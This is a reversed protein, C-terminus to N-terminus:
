LKGRAAYEAEPEWPFLPQRRHQYKFSKLDASTPGPTDALIFHAAVCAYAARPAIAAKVTIIKKAQPDIGLSLIQHLSLPAMRLSTLVITHRQGTEVVVSLGQNQESRGGHRPQPEFFMGDCITRVRGQIAVPKGHQDATKGGVKIQVHSGVGATICSAAAQPDWLVVLGNLVGQRLIEQLLITSDGPAGGAINDGMDSVVVPQGEFAAAQRIAQAATPIEGVFRHRLRWVEQSLGIAHENAARQEGNAVVVISTGMEPVDARPYGYGIGASLISPQHLIDELRRILLAAPEQSTDQKIVNTVMPPTELAQVPRIEGRVTQAIMQAAEFGREQQDVHPTTRYLITATVGVVMHSSINAHLDLTMVIPMTPGVVRRLRTVIQGDADPANVAVTAGHLALLVGDLNGAGRLGERIDKWIGDFTEATLPGSPMAVAVVIPVPEFGYQDAGALFGGVEHHTGQWRDLIQQGVDLHCASFDARTTVAAVFTNSEHLFGIIGIRM